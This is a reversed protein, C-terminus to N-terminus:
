LQSKIRALLVNFEDIAEFQPFQDIINKPAHFLYGV